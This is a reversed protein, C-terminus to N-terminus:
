KSKRKKLNNLLYKCEKPNLASQILLEAVLMVTTILAGLLFFQLYTDPEIKIGAGFIAVIAFVATNTVIVKNTNWSKRGLIKKNAYHNIDFTRYLLAIITGVLAGYLMYRDGWVKGFVIMAAVSVVLNLATETVTSYITEKFKGAANITRAMAERGVQLLEIIIYLLPLGSVVYNIDMGQTYIKIFPITLLYATSYLAFSVASYYVNFTDIKIIFSSRDEANYSQGIIFNMGDGISGVISAILNMVLKYMTYISVLQLNGLFSLLLIDINQFVISSVKHVLASNKQGIATINPPQKFNIWPYRRKAIFYYAATALLNLLLFCLQVIIINVKNVILLIKVASTAAYLAMNIESDIRNDGIASMVLLIKSKYFFSIGTAAGSIMIYLFVMIYTMTDIKVILPYIISVALLVGFYVFGIRNYYLTTASLIENVERYKKQSIPLFLAQLTAAGVGAELLSIYSFIQAVSGQLGNIESGYNLIFFRPIVIGVVCVLVKYAISTVINSISKQVNTRTTLM